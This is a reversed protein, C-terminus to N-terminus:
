GQNRLLEAAEITARSVEFLEETQIPSESRGKVADIFRGVCEVQGKDQRWLGMKRFGPWNYGKLHRFNDLQLVRGDCFIEVREKALSAAGNALYMITGFSGDEFGLTISTKDEVIEDLGQSGMCRAQVSTIKCGAFYRMLDVYHCAEGVIRGGGVDRDQIWSSAPIKGANMVMLFTKPVSQNLLLQKIKQAHPSFRRNFGVTLICGSQKHANEIAELEQYTLALPKEVFVHKGAQLASITLEAHSDHRTAIAVCNIEQSEFIDSKDTSAHRFGTRKGVLAGSAGGSSLITHLIVDTKQFAPVLIRSSYNGAGIMALTTNDLRQPTKQHDTGASASGDIAVHTALREEDNHRYDLLLGLADKEKVLTEYAAPADEFDFRHSILPQLNLKGAAMLGLIAEFNRQETWRVYGLPYDNGEDEYNKDYRGPGYSCSVQFKIEKEYFDSRNLQLGAVGVLIIRGRKRSMQAAQRIPEDSKTSATIIVGDVGVGGSFAMGHAIPDGGEGPNCTEAGFSKALELKKDDFDIALVRCGQALLLQVTLLGILGVGVVVFAEGLTPEALRIGQLGIAAVVTFSAEENSVTEPIKAALTKPVRVIDAHHGNSIIRDGVAFETVGEGLEVIEGVNCYGLPLPQNLKSRVSDATTLLGDTKVKDLVQRIKEPQQRAKSVLGARGFDVLMRETGSSILSTRTLSVVHQAIPEPRPATVLMTDGKALDQFVQKM